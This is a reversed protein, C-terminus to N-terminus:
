APDNPYDVCWVFPTRKRGTWIREVNKYGLKFADGVVDCVSEGAKCAKGYDHPAPPRYWPRMIPRYGQESLATVTVLVAADRTRNVHPDRAWAAKGPRRIDLWEVLEPAPAGDGGGLAAITRMTDWAGPETRSELLLDRLWESGSDGMLRYAQALMVPRSVAHPALVLAFTLAKDYETSDM